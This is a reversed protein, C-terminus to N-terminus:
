KRRMGLLKALQAQVRMDLDPHEPKAAECKPKFNPLPNAHDSYAPRSLRDLMRNLLKRTAPNRVRNVDLIEGILEALDVDSTYFGECDVETGNIDFLKRAPAPAPAPAPVADEEAAAHHSGDCDSDTKPHDDESIPYMLIPLVSKSLAGGDAPSHLPVFFVRDKVNMKLLEMGRARIAFEGDDKLSINVGVAMGDQPVGLKRLKGDIFATIPELWEPNFKESPKMSIVHVGLPASKSYRDMMKHTPKM